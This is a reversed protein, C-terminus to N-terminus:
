KPKIMLIDFKARIFKSDLIKISQSTFTGADAQLKIDKILNRVGSMHKLSSDTVKEETVNPTRPEDLFLRQFNTYNVPVNNALQEAILNLEFQIIELYRFMVQKEQDLEKKWNLEKDKNNFKKTVLYGSIYGSILGTGVGIGINTFLEAWSM